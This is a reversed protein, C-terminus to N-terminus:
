DVCGSDMHFGFHEDALKIVIRGYVSKSIGLLSLGKNNITSM